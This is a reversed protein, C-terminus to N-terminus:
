KRLFWLIAGITLALIVVAAQIEFRGKEDEDNDRM